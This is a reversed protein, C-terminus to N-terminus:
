NQQNDLPKCKGMDGSGDVIPAAILRHFRQPALKGLRSLLLGRGSADQPHDGAQRHVQLARECFNCCARSAEAVGM